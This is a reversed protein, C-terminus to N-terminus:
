GSCPRFGADFKQAACHAFCFRLANAAAPDIFFIWYSEHAFNCKDFSSDFITVLDEFSKTRQREFVGSKDYTKSLEVVFHAVPMNEGSLIVRLWLIVLLRKM